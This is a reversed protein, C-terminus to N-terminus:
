LVRRRKSIHVVVIMTVKRTISFDSCMHVRGVRGCMLDQWKPMTAITTMHMMSIMLNCTDNCCFFWCSMLNWIYHFLVIFVLMSVHTYSEVPPTEVCSPTISLPPRQLVPRMLPDMAAHTVLTVVNQVVYGSDDDSVILTSFLRRTLSRRVPSIDHQENNNVIPVVLRVLRLLM